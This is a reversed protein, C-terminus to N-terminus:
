RRIDRKTEPCEAEQADDHRRSGLLRISVIVLGIAFTIWPIVVFLGNGSM